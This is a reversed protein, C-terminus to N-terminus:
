AEEGKAKAIATHAAEVAANIAPNANPAQWDFAATMAELAALLEPAAAILRANADGIPNHPGYPAGDDMWVGYRTLKAIENAKGDDTCIANQYVVWPGPTHQAQTM